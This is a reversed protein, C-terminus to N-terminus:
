QCSECEGTDDVVVGSIVHSTEYTKDEATAKCECKDCTCPEGDWHHNHFENDCHCDCHCKGCKSM